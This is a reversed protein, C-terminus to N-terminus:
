HQTLLDALTHLFEKNVSAEPITVTENDRIVQLVTDKIKRAGIGLFGGEKRVASCTLTNGKVEVEYGLNSVKANIEAYFQRLTGHSAWNQIKRLEDEM